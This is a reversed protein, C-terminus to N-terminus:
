WRQLLPPSVGSVVGGHASVLQRAKCVSLLTRVLEEEAVPKGLHANLCATLSTASDLELVNSSVAIIPLDATQPAARLRRTTELGDMEPMQIDMLVADYARDVGQALAIAALGSEASEAHAGERQLLDCAVQLITSNDDVVLIRLGTQGAIDVFACSREVELAATVRQRLLLLTVPKSRYDDILAREADGRAALEISGFGTVM